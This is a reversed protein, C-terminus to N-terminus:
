WSKALSGAVAIRQMSELLTVPDPLDSLPVLRSPWASHMTSPSM